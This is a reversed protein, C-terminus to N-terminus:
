SRAVNAAHRFFNASILWLLAFFSSFLLARSAGGPIKATIPATAVLMGAIAQMAATGLMARAMGRPHFWAAFAGVVAAMIVMFFGIGNGDDHVITTWVTLVSTVVAVAVGARYIRARTRVQVGAVENAGITHTSGATHTGTMAGRTTLPM